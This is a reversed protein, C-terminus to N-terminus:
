RTNIFKKLLSLTKEIDKRTTKNGLSFRLSHVAADTSKGLASIVYSEDEDRLCSSKTSCSIGEADLQLLLFETDVPSASININNAIRQTLSGNVTVQPIAKLNEIFFDRLLTIRKTEKERNKFALELAKAFGCIAPVNETGARLGNEQGGGHIIPSLIVGRKKWLLGIGRPGYMKQGDLTIMDAGFGRVDIPLYLPAQSADVHLYPLPVATSDQVIPFNKKAARVIKAIDIIPQITGIENNVFMLSVLFTNPRIKEKLEKTNIIGEENVSIYDVAVGQAELWHAVELVSPHEIASTIFHLDQPKKTKKGSKLVAQYAGIIALNNAETGSATFILEDAHGHLIDAIQKKAGDVAKKAAVGETHISSPNAFDPSLYASMVKQVEPAVPTIAAYDLYIRKKAM